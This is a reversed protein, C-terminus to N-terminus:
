FRKYDSASADLEQETAVRLAKRSVVYVLYFGLDEVETALDDLDPHKEAGQALDVEENLWPMLEGLLRQPASPAIEVAECVYTPRAAVVVEVRADSYSGRTVDLPVPSTGHVEALDTTDTYNLSTLTDFHAQAERLPQDFLTRFQAMSEERAQAAEVVARVMGGAVGALGSFTASAAEAARGLASTAVTWRHPEAHTRPADPPTNTAAPLRLAEAHGEVRVQLQDMHSARDITFRVDGVLERRLATTVEGEIRAAERDTIHGDADCRLPTGLLRDCTTRAIREVAAQVRDPDTDLAATVADVVQQATTTPSASVIVSGSSLRTVMAGVRIDQDAAVPASAVDGLAVMASGDGNLRLLRGAAPEGFRRSATVTAADLLYIPNGVDAARLNDGRLQFVGGSQQARNPVEFRNSMRLAQGRLPVTTVGVVVGDRSAIRDVAFSAGTLHRALASTVNAEIQAAAEDSVAGATYDAQSLSRRIEDYALQTAIDSTRRRVVEDYEGPRQKKAM